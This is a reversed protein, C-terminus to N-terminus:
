ELGAKRWFTALDFDQFTSKLANYERLCLSEARRSTEGVAYDCLGRM